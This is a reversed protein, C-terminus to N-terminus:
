HPQLEHRAPLFGVYRRKKGGLRLALRVDDYVVVVAPRSHKIFHEAEARLSRAGMETVPTGTQRMGQWWQNLALRM